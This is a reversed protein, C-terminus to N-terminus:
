KTPFAARALFTGVLFLIVLAISIFVVKKNRKGHKIQWVGAIISTLGIAIVVGFLGYMITIQEPTIKAQTSPEQQVAKYLLGSVIVTIAGMFVTLFGGVILSFWGLRRIRISSITKRGCQPCQVPPGPAEFDCKPCASFENM